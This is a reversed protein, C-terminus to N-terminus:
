GTISELVGSVWACIFIWLGVVVIVFVWFRWSEDDEPPEPVERFSM